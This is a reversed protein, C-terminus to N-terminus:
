TAVIAGVCICTNVITNVAQLFVNAVLCTAIVELGGM